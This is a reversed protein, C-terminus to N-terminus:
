LAHINRRKYLYYSLALTGVVICLHVGVWKADLAGEKLIYITDFYHFPTFFGLAKSEFINKLVNLIYMIFALGMSYSIVSRIKKVSVSVLMGVGLFFLQFLVMTALLRIVRGVEYTQGEKFLEVAWLSFVGIVSNTIIFSVISAMIKSLIIKDRSVPKTMLFDATLEREEVSLVGFGHNASQVALGLQAFSFTFAFFGLITGMPLDNNMGFARLMEEPYNALIKDMLQADGVFVPFIAMYLLVMAGLAVGWILSPILMKKLEYKFIM